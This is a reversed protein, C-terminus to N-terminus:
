RAIANRGAHGHEGSWLRKEITENAAAYKMEGADPDDTVWADRLEGDVRSIVIVCRSSLINDVFQRTAEEPTGTYGSAHLIDGHTHWALNGFGISWDGDTLDVILDLLGDPSTHREVIAM